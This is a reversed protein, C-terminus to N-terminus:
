NEDNVGDGMTVTMLGNIHIGMDFVIVQNNRDRISAQRDARLVRTKDERRIPTRGACRSSRAEAKIQEDALLNDNAHRSM